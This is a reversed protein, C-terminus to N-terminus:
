VLTQNEDVGLQHVRDIVDDSILIDKWICCHERKGTALSMLGLGIQENGSPHLAIVGLTRDININTKVKIM